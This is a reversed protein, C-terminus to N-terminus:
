SGRGCWLQSIRQWESQWLAARRRFLWQRVMVIVALMITATFVLGGAVTELVAPAPDASSWPNDIPHGNNDVRVNVTSGPPPPTLVPMDVSQKTGHWTWQLHAIYTGAAAEPQIATQGAPETVAVSAAVLHTDHALREASAGSLIAAVATLDVLVFGLIVVGGIAVRELPHLRRRLPNGSRRARWRWFRTSRRYTSTPTTRAPKVVVVGKMPM